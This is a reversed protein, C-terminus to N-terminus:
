SDRLQKILSRPGKRPDYNRALKELDEAKTDKAGAAPRPSNPRGVGLEAYIKQRETEVAKQIRADLDDGPQSAHSKPGSKKSAMSGGEKERTKRRVIQRISAIFSPEDTWDLDEDKLDIADNGYLEFHTNASEVLERSRRAMYQRPDERPPPPAVARAEMKEIKAKLREIEQEAPPLDAIRAELELTEREQAEQLARQEAMAALQAAQRVTLEETTKLKRGMAALRDRLEKIDDAVPPSGVTPTSPAAPDAADPPQGQSPDQAIPMDEPQSM